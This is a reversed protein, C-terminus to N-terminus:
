RCRFQKCYYVNYITVLACAALYAIVYFMFPIYINKPPVNVRWKFTTRGGLLDSLLARLGGAMLVTAPMSSSERLAIGNQVIQLTFVQIGTALNYNVYCTSFHSQTGKNQNQLWNQGRRGKMKKKFLVSYVFM